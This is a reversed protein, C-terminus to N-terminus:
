AAKKSKGWMQQTGGLWGRLESETKALKLGTRKTFAEVVEEISKTGLNKIDLLVEESYEFLDSMTNFQARKLANYTRQSLQLEEIPASAVDPPLVVSHSEELEMRPSPSCELRALRAEIQRIKEGWERSEGTALGQSDVGLIESPITLPEGLARRVANEFFQTMAINSSECHAEFREALEPPLRFNIQRTKKRQEEAM